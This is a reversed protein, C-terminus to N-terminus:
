APLIVEVTTGKGPTSKINITGGNLQLIKRVISLGLGFGEKQKSRSKDVRYFAEFIRSLQDKEIGIGTDEILIRVKDTEVKECRITVKGNERNYKIANDVLNLFVEVMTLRDCRAICDEVDAVITINRAAAQTKLISLVDGIIEKVNCEKVAIASYKSELQAMFLMKEILESVVHAASKITSLAERYASASREKKLALEAQMLIVSVPTKLEHSVDSILRKQQNFAEELRELMNNFAEVLGELEDPIRKLDIRQSLNENSIKDIRRSLEDIPKLAKLSILYGGISSILMVLVIAALTVYMFNMMIGHERQVDYAVQIVIKLDKDWYNVLRLMMGNVRVNMCKNLEGNYPLSMDGLSMSKELTDGNRSRIQFFYKSNRTLYIWLRGNESVFRNGNVDLFSIKFSNNKILTDLTRARAFLTADVPKYVIKRLSYLFVLAVVSLVLLMTASYLFVLRAKLSSLM